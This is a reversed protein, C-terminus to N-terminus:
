ATQLLEEFVSKLNALNESLIEKVTSRDLFLVKTKPMVQAAFSIPTHELLECLGLIEGPKVVYRLKRNKTLHIEGELVVYAVIPTQGEYFLQSQSSYCYPSVHGQISKIVAPRLLNTSKGENM